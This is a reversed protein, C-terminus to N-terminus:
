ETMYDWAPQGGNQAMFSESLQKKLKICQILYDNYALGKNSDFWQRLYKIWSLHM